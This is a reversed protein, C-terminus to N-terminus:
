AGTTAFMSTYYDKKANEESAGVLAKLLISMTGTRDRGVACHMDIPYNDKEAFVSMINKISEFNNRNNIGTGSDVTTVAGFQDQFAYQPTDFAFYHGGFNLPDYRNPGSSAENAGRLDLDSKIGLKEFAAKGAETMTELRASRYILGQQVYGYVSEFGGLDRTNSVGEIEVTRVSADTEFSFISSYTKGGNELNAIVQWFYETDM